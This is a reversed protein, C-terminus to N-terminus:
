FLGFSMIRGVEHLEVPSIFFVPCPLLAGGCCPPTRELSWSIYKAWSIFIWTCNESKGLALWSIYKVNTENLVWGGWTHCRLFSRRCWDKRTGNRIEQSHSTKQKIGSGKHNEPEDLEYEFYERFTPFISFMSKETVDEWKTKTGQHKTWFTITFFM